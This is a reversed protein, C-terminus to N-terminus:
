KKYKEIEDKFSNTLSELIQEKTAYSHWWIPNQNLTREPNNIHYTQVLGDVLGVFIIGLKSAENTIWEFKELKELVSLERKDIEM